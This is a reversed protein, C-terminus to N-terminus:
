PTVHLRDLQWIARAFTSETRYRPEDDFPYLIWLPGKQRLSMPAGDRHYAVIPYDPEIRAVDITVSYDNVATALVQGSTVGLAELLAFLPVGTYHSVGETWGTGTAFTVQPLARLMELDFVAGSATNRHVIDGTVTLLVEGAPSGLGQARVEAGALFFGAILGVLLISRRYM